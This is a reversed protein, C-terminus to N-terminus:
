RYEPHAQIFADLKAQAKRRRLPPAIWTALGGVPGLAQMGWRLADSEDVQTAILGDRFTFRSVIENRVPRGTDRFTYEATWHALGGSEEAREIAYTARLDSDAIMHWMAHIAKRGNLRFAIDEFTADPQYCAAMAAHDRARLGEFLRELLGALTPM